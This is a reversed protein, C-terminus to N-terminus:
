NVSPELICCSSYCPTVRRVIGTPEFCVQNVAECHPCTINVSAVTRPGALLGVGECKLTASIANTCVCCDFDIVVQLEMM